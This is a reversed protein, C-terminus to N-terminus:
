EACAGRVAVPQLLWEDSGVMVGVQVRCPPTPVEARYRFRGAADTEASGLLVSTDADHIRVLGLAPAREGDVRLTAGDDDEADDREADERDDDAEAPKWGAKRVRTFLGGEVGCSAPAGAVPMPDSRLEGVRARVACPASFTKAAAKFKGSGGARRARIPVETDADVIEVSAGAPAGGGKVHLRRAGTNWSARSLYLGLPEGTTTVTVVFEESDSGSPQGADSVRCVLTHVGTTGPGPTWLLEATGDGRDTFSAGNPLGDMTLQLADGEPDSATVVVALTEGERLSRDGIPALVPPRNADGVTITFEESDSAPPEGADTAVVTVPFTGSTGPAPTWALEATGDGHDTLSAGSPLGLAEFSVPDGDPDSASIAVALSGGDGVTRSGIPDLVPPRNAGGAVITVLESDSAAPSADDTVSFTVPYIGPQGLPATWSFAGTGGGQDTFSAGAPLNSASLVLPDGDPDSARIALALTEGEGIAQDGIPDLVPPRNAVNVSVTIAESDTAPPTWDDRVLFTVPHNGAQALTPAWRLEASGNGHDTFTAGAPLDAGDFVLADGNPDTASIPLVLEQGVSVSRDGIPALVPPDNMQSVIPCFFSFDGSQQGLVFQDWNPQMRNAPTKDFTGPAHCFACDGNWPQAPEGGSTACFANIRPGFEPKALAARADLLVVLSVALTGFRVLNRLANM